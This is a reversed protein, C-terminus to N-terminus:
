KCQMLISRLKESERIASFSVTPKPEGIHERLSKAMWHVDCWKGFKYMTNQYSGSEAFGMASHFHFSKENPSTIGVFINYFGQWTLIEFLAKYITSAIGQRHFTDKVYISTEASWQYAARERHKSAYGYGVIEGDIEYVIWPFQKETERIRDHFVDCSPVEYEASVRTDKVYPAYIALMKEADELTAIRLKKNEM